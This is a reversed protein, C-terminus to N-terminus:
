FILLCLVVFSGLVLLLRSLFESTADEPSLINTDSNYPQNQLGFLASFLSQHLSPDLTNNHQAPLIHQPQGANNSSNQRQSHLSTFLNPRPPPPLPRSPVPHEDEQKFESTVTTSIRNNRKKRHRRNSRKPTLPSSISSDSNNRVYIPIIEAVSSEAKCVPCCRRTSDVGRTGGGAFLSPSPPPETRSAAMLVDKEEPLMGPELWRFLCPWCYLHGCRTVVPQTVADLCINCEFPSVLSTKTTENDSDDSWSNCANDDNHDRGIIRENSEDEVAYSADNTNTSEVEEM